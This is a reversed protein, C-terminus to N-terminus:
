GIRQWNIKSKRTQIDKQYREGRQYRTINLVTIALLLFCILISLEVSVLVSKKNGVYETILALAYCSCGRTNAWFYFKIWFCPFMYFHVGLFTDVFSFFCSVFLDSDLSLSFKKLFWLRILFCSIIEVPDSTRAQIFINKTCTKNPVLSFVDIIFSFLCSTM